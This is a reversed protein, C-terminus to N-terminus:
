NDPPLEPRPFLPIECGAAPWASEDHRITFALNGDSSVVWHIGDGHTADDAIGSETDFL